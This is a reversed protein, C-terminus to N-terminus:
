ARHLSESTYNFFRFFPHELMHRIFYDIGWRGSNYGGMLILVGLIIYLPNVSIAGAFLFMFNMLLGVLAAVPTFLGIILLIGATVEAFPILVNILDAQPLVINEIFANFTPYQVHGDFTMVPNKIVNKLFGSSDFGDTYKHIGSMLWGYGLYLRAVLLLMRAILHTQLWHIMDIGGQKEKV